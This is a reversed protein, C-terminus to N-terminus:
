KPEARRFIWQQGYQPLRRRDGKSWGGVARMAGGLRQSERNTCDAKLKGMMEVWIELLCVENRYVPSVDPDVADYGLEAGVPADLWAEIQGALSDEATQHRRSEQLRKAEQTAEESKLYLPLTGFPQEQRWQDYITKAEAWMQDINASLKDTDIEGVACAIPWFRRGGTSDRLYEMENTSGMFVCQRFYDSARRAYSLRVKDSTRSVFGKITTVEAKSFGQLEPIELIWSGQMREVMTKTDHFDGELESSWHRGLIQIFTSKRKGQLGELIPVFDFKHGPEFARTVAGLMFLLSAERHYENAEAGVYDIFLNAVRHVGDWKLDSLYQRVPHFRNISAVTEVAAKLDRDSTKLGYGGQRSPTELVLRIDADQRDSWLDGNVPDRVDWIHSRLQRVPKPGKKRLVFEGPRRNQVVEQTFENFAMVGRTRPDHRIILEVNHLTPKIGTGDETMQLYSRWQDDVAPLAPPLTVNSLDALLDPIGDFAHLDNAAKLRDGDDSLLDVVDHDQQLRHQAAAQILTAMRVPNSTKGKFSRWVAAQDKMNFKASAKSWECWRDFGAQGGEYQHNLAAGVQLWTDRDEVWEVPLGAVTNTIEDETLDMPSGRFLAFLDDDDDSADDSGGHAGWAEVVASPIITGLGFDVLDWDIERGWVYNEGSVPHISPPLAVQVNTGYLQVEWHRKKVERQKADDFVMDFGDSQGLTFKRFAQDSFFYLHLSEGGSGSVVFPASRADPWLKLILAWADGAQAPDRIDVDIIHLYGSATLSFEGPRIGVNFGRRYEARLDDFTKTPVTSWNAEVPSKKRSKLWHISVGADVMPRIASLMEPLPDREGAFVDRDAAALVAM